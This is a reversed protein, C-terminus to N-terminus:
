LSGQLSLGIQTTPRFGFQGLPTPGTLAVLSIRIARRDAVRPLWAGVRVELRPRMGAEQDLEADGALFPLLPAADPRAELQAGARLIWREDDEPKVNYGYRVGAWAGLVDLPKRFALVEVADRSFDAGPDGFRRNYEDGMHSSSHYFRFRTWGNDHHWVLPVAFIWDTAVMERQLVQLAFRAFAAAELGVVVPAEERTGALLLVPLTAGISLETEFGPGHADPNRTVGLITASTVPNRPGALLDPMLSRPPFLQGAEQAQVSPLTVLPGIALLLLQPGGRIVWHPILTRLVAEPM